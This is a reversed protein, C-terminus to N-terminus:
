INSIVCNVPLNINGQYNQPIKLIELSDPLNLLDFEYRTNKIELTKLSPPLFVLPHNFNSSVSLFELSPPINNIPQNFAIGLKLYKLNPPLVIINNFKSMEKITLHTLTNPLFNIPYNHKWGLYIHTIPLNSLNLMNKKSYNIYIKPIPINQLEELSPEKNFWIYTEGEITKLKEM